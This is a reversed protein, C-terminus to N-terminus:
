IGQVTSKKGEGGRPGRPRTPCRNARLFARNRKKQPPPSGDAYLFARNRKKKGRCCRTQMHLSQSSGEVEFRRLSSLDVRKGREAGRVGLGRPAGIQASSPVTGKKKQPPPSGDAYLFARNRKKKGRCCRTQM